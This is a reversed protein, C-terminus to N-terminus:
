IARKNLYDLVEKSSILDGQKYYRKIRELEHRILEARLARLIGQSHLVSENWPMAPASKNFINLYSHSKKLVSVITIFVRIQHFPTSIAYVVSWNKKKAFDVLGEAEVLTNISGDITRFGIIDEQKIGLSVLKSQWNTFGPYGTKGEEGCIVIKGIDKNKYLELATDFLNKQNDSTQAFIYAADAKSAPKVDFLIKIILETLNEQFNYDDM